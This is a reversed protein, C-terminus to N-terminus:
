SKMPTYIALTAVYYINLVNIKTNSQHILSLSNGLSDILRTVLTERLEARQLEQKNM